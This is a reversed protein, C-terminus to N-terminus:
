LTIPPSQEIKMYGFQVPIRSFNVKDQPLQFQLDDDAVTEIKVLEYWLLKACWAYRLVNKTMRFLGLPESPLSHTRLNRSVVETM